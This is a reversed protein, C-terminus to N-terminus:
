QAHRRQWEVKAEAILRDHNWTPHKASLEDYIKQLGPRRGEFVTVVHNELLPAPDPESAPTSHCRHVIMQGLALCRALGM